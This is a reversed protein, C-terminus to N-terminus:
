KAMKYPFEIFQDTKAEYYLRSEPQGELTLVIQVERKKAREKLEEIFAVDQPIYGGLYYKWTDYPISKEEM